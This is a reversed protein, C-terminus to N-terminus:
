SKREKLILTDAVDPTLYFLQAPQIEGKEIRALSAPLRRRPQDKLDLKEELKEPDRKAFVNVDVYDVGPVGQIARYVESLRADQGLDRRAFGFAEAMAARIQPEVKDWLYDPLVRVEAEVVLFFRQRVAVAVPQRPDGFRLLAEELNLLLDSDKSIPIDDEGAITVHVLQVRGDSLRTASSKGVGAFTRAFDAYDQVGVLRDLAMVALPANRRAQDRSEASAGGTAPVPNIVDKVGLPRTALQSIQGAKVNGEKGIGSRYKARVNEAGSPLRAGRKGDGFVVTTQGGDDIRVFYIRDAPGLGAPCDAEHWLVDNVRAQLTSAIGSPTPASVYTLPPQKLTFAQHPKSADGSGLVESRTEGHTAHAVNGYIRLTDRKYCYALPKALTLTTHIRDGPLDARTSGGPNIRSVGQRVGAIMALEAAPVGTVPVTIKGTASDTEGVDTRDGSLILWRGPQLGDYLGVLEIEKGCVEEVVPDIPEEALELEECQTFVSTGRIVAFTDPHYTAFQLWTQDLEVRTSKGTIGYAARSVDKVARAKAIVLPSGRLNSDPRELVIWDNPKIQPYSNDLYLVYDGDQPPIKGAVEISDFQATLVPDGVASVTTVSARSAGAVNVDTLPNFLFNDSVTAPLSSFAELREGPASTRDAKLTILIDRKEFRFELQCPLGRYEAKKVDLLIREAAQPFDLSFSQGSHLSTFSQQKTASGLQITVDLSLDPGTLFPRVLLKFDEGAGGSSRLDWEKGGIIVGASNRVPELPANHGFVAARTRLACVKFVPATTAPVNAWAKYLVGALEPRAVTLLRAALDSDPSFLQGVDRQLNAANRVQPQPPKGLTGLVQAISTTPPAAPEDTGNGDTGSGSGDGDDGIPQPTKQPPGAAPAAASVAYRGAAGELDAILGGIWPELRNANKEVATAHEERLKPLAEEIAQRLEAEGAGADLAAKVPELYSLVRRASAGRSIKLTELDSARELGERLAAASIGTEVPAEASPPVSIAMPPTPPSLPEIVPRPPSPPSPPPPPMLWLQVDVRTRDKVADAEVRVVRYLVPKAGGTDILLPDNLKLSTAIGKFYLPVAKRDTRWDKALKATQQPRTLRVQLNNWAARAVLDETTEFTQPMEGPGPVSRAAAGASIVIEPEDLTAAAVDPAGPPLVPKVKEELTYALYTSAAVGPRPVYGVLRALELVSRRETATRLYGENAIREQYFTLVDAVVAWADLLALSFDAPERTTLGALAPFSQSSLRAQMTELFAAHTGIRYSLADLGPRNAIPQPTIPEVGECCGCDCGPGCSCPGNPSRDRM